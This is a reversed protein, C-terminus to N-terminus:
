PSPSRLIRLESTGWVYDSKPPTPPPRLDAGRPPMGAGNMGSFAIFISWRLEKGAPCGGKVSTDVELTLTRTSPLATSPSSPTTANGGPVGPSRRTQGPAVPELLPGRADITTRGPIWCEAFPKGEQVQFFEVGSEPDKLTAIIQYTQGLEARQFVPLSNLYNNPSPAPSGLFDAPLGFFEVRFEPPTSDARDPSVTESCAALLPLACSWVVVRALGTRTHLTALL